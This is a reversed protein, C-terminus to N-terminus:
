SMWEEKRHGGSCCLFNGAAAPHSNTKMQGKPEQLHAGPSLIILTPSVEGVDGRPFPTPLPDRRLLLWLPALGVACASAGTAPPPRRDKSSM